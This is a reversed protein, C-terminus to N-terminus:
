DDISDLMRASDELARASVDVLHIDLGAWLSTSPRRRTEGAEILVRLKDGSGSGLEIITPAAGIRRFVDSGHAALLRSEARTIRYWPLRCIAEFLASGLEDYFYRSPLQRPSQLLYYHVDVAFQATDDIRTQSTRASEAM